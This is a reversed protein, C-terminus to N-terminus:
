EIPKGPQPQEAEDVIEECDDPEIDKLGCIPCQDNCLCNWEDWWEAGCRLHPAQSVLDHCCPRAFATSSRICSRRLTPVSWPAAPSSSPPPTSCGGLRGAAGRKM